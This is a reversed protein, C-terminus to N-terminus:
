CSILKGKCLSKCPPVSYPNNFPNGSARKRRLMKEHEHFENDHENDHENDNFEEDDGYSGGDLFRSTFGYQIFQNYSSSRGYVNYGLNERGVSETIKSSGSRCKPAFISCVFLPLLSYCKVGFLKEFPALDQNIKEQNGEGMLNPLATYTYGPRHRQCLSM